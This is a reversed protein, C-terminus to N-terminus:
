RCSSVLPKTIQFPEAPGSIFHGQWKTSSKRREFLPLNYTAIAKMVKVNECITTVLDYSCKSSFQKIPKREEWWHITYTQFLIKRCLKFYKM